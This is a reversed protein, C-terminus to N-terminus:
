LGIQHFAEQDQHTSLVDRRLQGCLQGVQAEQHISVIERLFLRSANGKPVNSSTQSLFCISNELQLRSPFWEGQDCFPGSYGIKCKCEYGQGNRVDAVCKGHQCMHNLCAQNMQDYEACGHSILHQSRAMALDPPNGNVYFERMCGELSTSNWIHWNRVAEQAVHSAIGGVFMNSDLVELYENVGENTITRPTGNDVRMTFNRKVLQFQVQHYQGDSVTEYSFMTSEPYNGVNLSIRIRGKFLEIALHQAQGYYLLVGNLKKTAFKFTINLSPKTKIDGFEM